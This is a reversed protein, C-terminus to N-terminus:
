RATAMTVGELHSFARIRVGEGVTVGPQFVVNPEVVTDRGLVTDFAFTVSSPDVLTAGASMAAERLRGQMAAEAAALQSRDNVGLVETEDALVVEVGRGTGRALEVLDTLYYENQINNPRVTKLLELAVRGDVAMMGGNCLTIAREQDTADKEERIAVLAGDDMVLRGYGKPDRAKFGLVAVAAGTEDLKALLAAFTQPRLLPNDAFAVIVSRCGQALAQEAALVAHATGRRETQVFRAATPAVAAVDDRGPGVVLAIRDVGADTISALVHALLSRGAVEHLVKPRSSRMRTGEGAALVVALWGRDSQHELMANESQGERRSYAM